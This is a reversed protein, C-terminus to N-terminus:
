KKMGQPTCVRPLFTIASASRPLYSPTEAQLHPTPLSPAPCPPSPSWPEPSLSTVVDSGWGRTKGMPQVLPVNSEKSPRISVPHELSGAGPARHEWPVHKQGARPCSRTAGPTPHQLAGPCISSRDGPLSCGVMACSWARLKAQSQSGSGEGRSRRQTKCWPNQPELHHIFLQQFSHFSPQCSTGCGELRLPRQQLAISSHQLPANGVQLQPSRKWGPCTKSWSGPM